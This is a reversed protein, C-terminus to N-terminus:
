RGSQRRYSQGDMHISNGGTQEWLRDFSASELHDKLQNPDLNATLITPLQNNYRGDIISFMTRRIFRPDARKEKGVDDLVVLDAYIIGKIIDDESERVQSEERNFSYTAQIRRFLEPESLFIIRPCGKTGTGTWRDIIRHCIASALHSKGTGWSETSWMYLSQYGRPYRDVPFGDAYDICATLAKDQWGKEFTSLDVGMFKPPIGASERHKRRVGAIEALRVAEEKAVEENYVILACGPCYGAGRLIKTSIMGGISWYQPEYEQQCRRCIKTAGEM